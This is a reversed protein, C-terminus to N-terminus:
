TTVEPVMWTIAYCMLLCQVFVWIDESLERVKRPPWGDRIQLSFEYSRHWIGQRAYGTAVERIWQEGAAEQDKAGMLMGIHMETHGEDTLWWAGERQVLMVVLGDGDPMWFQPVSVRVKGDLTAGLQAGPFAAPEAEYLAALEQATPLENNSM